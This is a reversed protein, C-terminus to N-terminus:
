YYKLGMKVDKEECTFITLRNVEEPSLMTTDLLFIRPKDVIDIIEKFAEKPTIDTFYAVKLGAFRMSLKELIEVTHDSSGCDIIWLEEMRDTGSQLFINDIIGEIYEQADRIAIVMEHRTTINKKFFLVVINQFVYLVGLVALFTLFALKVDLGWVM